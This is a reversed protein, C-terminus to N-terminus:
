DILNYFNITTKQDLDVFLSGLLITM